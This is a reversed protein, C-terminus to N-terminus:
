ETGASARISHLCVASGRLCTHASATRCCSAAQSVTEQGSRTPSRPSSIQTSSDLEGSVLLQALEALSAEHVEEDAGVYSVREAAGEDAGGGADSEEGPGAAAAVDQAGGSLLEKFAALSLWDDLGETWV